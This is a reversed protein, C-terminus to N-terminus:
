LYENKRRKKIEVTLMNNYAESISKKLWQMMVTQTNFARKIYFHPIHPHQPFHGASKSPKSEELNFGHGEGNEDYGMGSGYHKHYDIDIYQPEKPRSYIAYQKGWRGDVQPRKDNWFRSGIYRDLYPNDKKTAMNSGRGYELVWAKM